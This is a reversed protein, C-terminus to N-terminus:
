KDKIEGEYRRRKVKIKSKDVILIVKKVRRDKVKIFVKDDFIDVSPVNSKNSKKKPLLKRKKISSVGSTLVKSNLVYVKVRQIKPSHLSYKRTRSLVQLVAVNIKNQSTVQTKKERVYLFYTDGKVNGHRSYFRAKEKLFFSNLIAEPGGFAPCNAVFVVMVGLSAIFRFM